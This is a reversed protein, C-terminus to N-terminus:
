GVWRFTYGRHHNLRGALCASVNSRQGGVAKAAETVSTYVQGTEIVEVLGGVRRDIRRKGGDMRYYIRTWGRSDKVFAWLQCNDLTVNTPDRDKYEIKIEKTMGSYFGKVLLDVVTGKYWVPHDDVYVVLLGSIPDVETPVVVLDDHKQVGVRGESSIRLGPHGSVMRWEEEVTM